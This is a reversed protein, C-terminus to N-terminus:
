SNRDNCFLEINSQQIGFHPLQIREGNIKIKVNVEYLSRMAM